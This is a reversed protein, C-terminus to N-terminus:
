FHYNENEKFDFEELTEQRKNPNFFHKLLNPDIISQGMLRDLRKILENKTDPMNHAIIDGQQM